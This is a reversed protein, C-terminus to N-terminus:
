LISHKKCKASRPNPVYLIFLMLIIFLGFLSSFNIFYVLWFFKSLKKNLLAQVLPHQLLREENSLM